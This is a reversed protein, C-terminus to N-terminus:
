VPEPRSEKGTQPSEVERQAEFQQAQADRRAQAEQRSQVRWVAICILAV